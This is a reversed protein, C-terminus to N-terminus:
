SVSSSKTNVTKHLCDSPPEFAGGQNQRLAAAHKEGKQHREALFSHILGAIISVFEDAKRPDNGVLEKLSSVAM